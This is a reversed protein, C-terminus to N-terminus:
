IVLILWSHNSIMVSAIQVRLSTTDRNLESRKYQHSCFVYAFFEVSDVRGEMRARAVTSSAYM